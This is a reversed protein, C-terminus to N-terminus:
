SDSDLREEMEDLLSELEAVIEDREDETATALESFKDQAEDWMSQVEARTEESATAIEASIDNFRAVVDDDVDGDVSGNGGAGPTTGNGASPTMTGTMAPSTSTAGIDTTDDDDGCAVGAAAILALSGPILLVKRFKNM